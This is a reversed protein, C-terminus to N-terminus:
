KSEEGEVAEQQVYGQALAYRFSNILATLNTFAEAYGEEIELGDGTHKAHKEVLEKLQQVAQIPDTTYDNDTLWKRVTNIDGPTPASIEERQSPQQSTSM